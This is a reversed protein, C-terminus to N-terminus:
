AFDGLNKQKKKGLAETVTGWSKRVINPYEKHQKLWESLFTKTRDDAPYGSGIEGYESELKKISADREVKALISAASVIPYIEDAKHKAIIESDVRLFKNLRGKFTLPNSDVCDVYAKDPKFHNILAAMREAELDNLNASGSLRSKDIEEASIKMIKYDCVTTKISGELAERRLPSLLKSDRVGLERLKAEEGSDILAGCVVLPGIVAGRGAEDIGLIKAM